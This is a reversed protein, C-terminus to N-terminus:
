FMLSTRAREYEEETIPSQRVMRWSRFWDVVRGQELIRVDRIRRAERAIVIERERETEEVEQLTVIGPRNPGPNKEVDGDKTLDPMPVDDPVSITIASMDDGQKNIVIDNLPTGATATREMIANIVADIPFDRPKETVCHCLSQTRGFIRAMTMVSVPRADYMGLLVCNFCLWASFDCEGEPVNHNNMIINSTVFITFNGDQVPTASTIVIPSVTSCTEEEFERIAGDVASEDREIWGAPLQWQHFRRDRVMLVKLGGPDFRLAMVGAGRYQGYRRGNGSKRDTEFGRVRSSLLKFQDKDLHSELANLISGTSHARMLTKAAEFDVANRHLM